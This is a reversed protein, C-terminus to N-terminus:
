SVLCKKEQLLKVPVQKKEQPLHMHKFLVEGMQKPSDINFKIGALDHIESELSALDIQLEDSYIKLFDKDIKVGEYEMLLVPVLPSQIEKLVNEVERALVMPAIKNKLQLTIDMKQVYETIKSLEVDRMSGQNKGKKGILTEISVPSYGLYTESLYDMGHRMDPEILYHALMTDYIPNQVEIM